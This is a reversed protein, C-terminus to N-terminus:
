PRGLQMLSDARNMSRYTLEAVADMQVAQGELYQIVGHYGVDEPKPMKYQGMWEMMAKRADGLSTAGQMALVSDAPNTATSDAWFELQAQMKDMAPLLGMVTDHLHMLADKREQIVALSDQEAEYNPNSTQVCASLGITFLLAIIVYKM